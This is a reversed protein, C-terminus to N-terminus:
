KFLIELRVGEREITIGRPQIRLVRFNAVVDGEGLLQGDVLAKPTPGMLISQLRLQAAQAKLGEVWHLRKDQEEARSTMSKAFRDWFVDEPAATTVPATGDRPVSDQNIYFLNRRTSSIPAAAWDRMQEFVPDPRAAHEVTDIARAPSANRTPRHEPSAPPDCGGSPSLGLFWRRSPGPSAAESSIISTDVHWTIGDASSIPLSNTAHAVLGHNSNLFMPQYGM